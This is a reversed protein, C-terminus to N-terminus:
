LREVDAEGNRLLGIESAAHLRLRGIRSDGYGIHEPRLEEAHRGLRQLVLVADVVTILIHRCRRPAGYPSELRPQNEVVVYNIHAALIIHPVTREVIVIFTHLDTGQQVAVNHTGRQATAGATARDVIVEGHTTVHRIFQEQTKREIYDAEIVVLEVYVALDRRLLVSAIQEIEFIALVKVHVTRRCTDLETHRNLRDIPQTYTRRHM